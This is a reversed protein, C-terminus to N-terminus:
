SEPWTWWDAHLRGICLPRLLRFPTGKLFSPYAGIYFNFGRTLDDDAYATFQLPSLVLSAHWFLIVCWRLLQLRQWLHADLHPRGCHRGARQRHSARPKWSHAGAHELPLANLLNPACGVLWRPKGVNLLGDPTAQGAARRRQYPDM